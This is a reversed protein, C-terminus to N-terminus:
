RKEAVALWDWPCPQKLWKPPQVFETKWDYEIKRRKTLNFGFSDLLLDLEEGLYHKTAVQDIEANGQQIDRYRKAAVATSPQKFLSSDIKWKQQVIRTLLWSELSPVVLILKGKKHLCSHINEFFVDRKKPSESLIANVCLAVDFKGTKVGPKSMDIRQYRVNSLHQHRQRAIRINGASIDAALVEAFRSSLLPLWKGVACGIDIVSKDANAASSLEKRIFGRRDNKLVDFIEEDYAPAMREWYHREM